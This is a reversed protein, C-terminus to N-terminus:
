IYCHKKAQAVTCTFLDVPCIYIINLIYRGPPKMRRQMIYNLIPSNGDFGPSWSVDVAKSDIKNLAVNTVSPAYPIESIFIIQNHVSNPM